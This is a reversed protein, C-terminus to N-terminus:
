KKKQIEKVLQEIVKNVKQAGHVKNDRTRVTVTKDAVEKEGVVLIYNVQALQAERVKKGISEARDDVEVRIHQEKMADAVQQAYAVFRDAVTLIRVQVPSLWLPFKGAYHEILVGIFRELSGLLARHVMTVRQKHGDPDVYTADFREPLNFDLQITACQWMRGLADKIHFDIKPGYFAGEGPKIEFTVKNQDLAQMLTQEAKVWLEEAGMAKEPKTSLEVSYEFDFVNSYIHRLFDICNSIEQQLQDLTCFIHADDQSLKRVRLAGSLTGRIENRHLPAFDAIRLPLERYSRSKSNYMLLHSPCNMPKLAFDQDDCKLTFMNERFHQWHGSMEWLAKNFIQPTIVEQYGRKFYEHRIFQLLENYIIAGKPYFFPSGPSYEHVMFLELDKGIKRHDRKAAEELLTLHQKLEKDSPFSIGYIRTLQKNKADARWFAGATKMLKIAKIYGTSPVHPGRCLDVFEKGHWYCSLPIKEKTYEEAMEVKYKNDKFLAKVRPVKVDERSSKLDKKIIEQMKKEIKPFDDPTIELEDFDYYFGEDVPPGITPKATPYLEKIAHALIHATSHRYIYKGDDSDYTIIEVKADEEIKYFSDVLKGDVKAALAAQALRKGISEAIEAPTIGKKYEKKSGDPLTITIMSM